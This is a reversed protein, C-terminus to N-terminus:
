KLEKPDEKEKLWANVNAAPAVNADGGGMGMASNAAANANPTNQFWTSLMKLILIACNNDVLLQSIYEFKLVHDCKTAKLLILLIGSIAKTVTEKHRVVDFKDLYEERQELTMSSFSAEPTTTPYDGNAGGMEAGGEQQGPVSNGLNVYYLLRILIGIHTAMNPALHSYLREVMKLSAAGPGAVKGRKPLGPGAVVSGRGEFASVGKSGALGLTMAGSGLTEMGAKEMEVRERAAQVTAHSVYLHKRLVRVTEQFSKPLLDFAAAAEAAAAASSSYNGSGESSISTGGRGRRRASAATLVSRPKIFPQLQPGNQLLIRKVGSSFPETLPLNRPSASMVDPVYYAPYKLSTITQFQHVDQPTSKMYLDKETLPALGERRRAANKMGGLRERTGVTILLVKWLLLLLKKLPYHKRFGEALQSVLDFLDAAIPRGKETGAGAGAGSGYHTCGWAGVGCAGNHSHVSGTPAAGNRAAADPATAGGRSAAVEAAMLPNDMNVEIMMYCLSLYVSTEANALDMAAQKEAATMSAIPDSGQGGPPSSAPSSATGAAAGITSMGSAPGNASTTTAPNSPSAPTANAAVSRTIVDLTSSVIRLAQHFHSFGDLKLLLRNNRHIWDLQETVSSCEGFVGQSIYLLRKAAAYREEPNRLELCELLLLVYAERESDSENKWEKSFTAEFQERGEQVFPNDQFNYFENVEGEFGDRDGYDFDFTPPKVKAPLADRILGKLAALGSGVTGTEVEPPPGAGNAEGWELPQQPGGGQSGGGKAGGAHLARQDEPTPPVEGSPPPTPPLMIFNAPRSPPQSVRATSTLTSYRPKPALVQPPPLSLGQLSAGVANLGGGPRTNPTPNSSTRPVLLVAPGFNQGYQQQQQHQPQPQQPLPLGPPPHQSVPSAPQGEEANFPNSPRPPAIQGPFPPPNGDVPSSPPMGRDVIIRRESTPSVVGGNGVGGSVGGAGGTHNLDGRRIDLSVLPLTRAVAEPLVPHGGRDPDTMLEYREVLSSPHGVPRDGLDSEGSDPVTRVDERNDREVDEWRSANGIRATPGANADDAESAGSLGMIRERVAGAAGSAVETALADQLTDPRDQVVVESTAARAEPGPAPQIVAATSLTSDPSALSPDTRTATAPGDDDAPVAGSM